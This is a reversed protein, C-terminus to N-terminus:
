VYCLINTDTLVFQEIHDKENKKKRKSTRCGDM